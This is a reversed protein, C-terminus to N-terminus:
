ITMTFDGSSLQSKRESLNYLKKRAARLDEILKGTEEFSLVSQHEPGLRNEMEIDSDFDARSPKRTANVRIRNTIEDLRDAIQFAKERLYALEVQADELEIGLSVRQQKKEQDTV